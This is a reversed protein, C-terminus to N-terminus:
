SVVLGSLDSPCFMTASARQCLKWFFDDRYQPICIGREVVNLFFLANFADLQQRLRSLAQRQGMIWGRM